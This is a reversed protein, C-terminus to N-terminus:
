HGDLSFHMVDGYTGGWGWGHAAFIQVVPHDFDWISTEKKFAISNPAFRKYKKHNGWPAVDGDKWDRKTGNRTQPPNYGKALSCNFWPNLGAGVGPNIDVACGIQHRSKGGATMNSRFCNGITFKFWGLANIERQIEELDAIVHKNYKMEQQGAMKYSVINGTALAQSPTMGPKVGCIAFKEEPTKGTFIGPSGIPANSNTSTQETINEGNQYSTAIRYKGKALDELCERKRLENEDFNPNETFWANSYPVVRCSLKMAKVKTVMNGPTMTHIVSFIIYTGRWMPVNMLQFYMLPQIQACGMMEFECIYSYNSFVPYIDQGIFAIRHTNRAGIKSTNSLTNIITSTIIPTEMSLNLNKFMHNNQRGYAVEFSPVYYGYEFYLGYMTTDEIIFDDRLIDPFSASKRGYEEVIDFGDKKYGNLESPIESLGPIYVIAFRNNEDIANMQEYPMPTFITKMAELAKRQNGMNTSVMGCEFSPLGVFMLQHKNVVDALYKFANTDSTTTVNNYCDLLLQCNLMFRHAINRYFSDIFVFNNKFNKAMFNHDTLDMAVLWKDWLSKLYMYIPLAMDRNFEPTDQIVQKDNSTLGVDNTVKDKITNLQEAFGNLYSKINDTFLFVDGYSNLRSNNDISLPSIRTVLEVCNGIYTSRLADQMATNAPNLWLKLVDKKATTFYYMLFSYNTNFSAFQKSASNLTDAWARATEPTGEIKGVFTESRKDALAIVYDSFMKGTTFATGDIKKLELKSITKWQNNIFHNFIRKLENAVMYDPMNMFVCKSNNNKAFVRYEYGRENKFRPHMQWHGSGNSIFLSYEINNQADYAPRYKDGYVIPDKHYKLIYEHRWLLAGYFAAKGFPIRKIVSHRNTVSDWMMSKDKNYFLTHLFLLAKVNNRIVADDIENQMYYFDIGFLSFWNGFVACDVTPIFLDNPNVDVGDEFALTTASFHAFPMSNLKKYTEVIDSSTDFNNGLLMRDEVGVDKYQKSFFGNSNTLHSYFDSIDMGWYHNLVESMDIEYEEGMVSIKNNKLEEYRKTIGSVTATDLVVRYMENNIYDSKKEPDKYDLFLQSNSCYHLFTDDNLYDVEFYQGDERNGTLYRKYTEINRTNAPVIGYHSKTPMYVYTVVGNGTEIFMQHRTIDPYLRKAFEFYHTTIDGDFKGYKDASPKCLMIDYLIDSINDDCQSLLNVIKDRNGIFRYYNLADIRGFTNALSDSVMDFESVGFIQTLRIGLMGALASLTEDGNMFPNLNDNLDNPLIPVYLYDVITDAKLKAPDSATRECALYLARVLKAEEFYDSFDGIWGFTDERETMLYYNTTDNSKTISPWPPINTGKTLVDTFEKSIGLYEASRQGVLEANKINLYCQYMMHILTEIHCIILKFINSVYPVIGLNDIALRIYNRETSRNIESVKTKKEAILGDVINKFTGWDIVYVRNRFKNIADPKRIEELIQECLSANLQVGNIKLKVLEDVTEEKVGVISIKSNEKDVHFLEVSNLLTFPPEKPLITDAIADEKYQDNFNTVIRMFSDWSTKIVSWDKNTFEDVMYLCQRNEITEQSQIIHNDVDNSSGLIRHKILENLSDYMSSLSYLTNIEEHSIDVFKKDSPSIVNLLDKNTFAANINKFLEFLTPVNNTSIAGNEGAMQWEIKNKHANWYDEGVYKCYPAAVLYEFPIDTLLSYSYGVFTAVAEFNGTQPNLSGKFSTCTMQYTVARGYFGKVQMRFLPYPATFFAGFISDITIKDDYHVVEERGFLATGRHDVFKITITPTYYNEYAITVNEVGLGEVVTKERYDDYHLDTYYTTLVSDNGNNYLDGQMFSVWQNEGITGYPTNWNLTYKVTEEQKTDKNKITVDTEAIGVNNKFRSLIRCELKFSISLDSYDPTMPVGNISGFAENPDAYLVRGIKKIYNQDKSM